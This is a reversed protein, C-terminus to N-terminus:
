PRGDATNEEVIEPQFTFIEDPNSTNLTARVWNVDPSGFTEVRTFNEVREGTTSSIMPKDMRFTHTDGHALVVPKGFAVVEEELAALFDKYGTHVEPPLEFGPNAQIFLMVVSSGNAEAHNFGERIWELNAENRAVYEGSAHGRNNNSGPVNLGLFTVDGYTWRVNEPYAAGQRTLSVTKKGLSEEGVFFIERLRELREVPDYGTHECDTWENDGPVYVLPNASNEFRERERFFTEDTCPSDGSKIDGVHVVFALKQGNMQRFLVETKRQEELNYPIDGILGIEFEQEGMEDVDTSEQLRDPAGADGEDPARGQLEAVALGFGLAILAALVLVIALHSRRVAQM